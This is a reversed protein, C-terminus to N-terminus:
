GFVRTCNLHINIIRKTAIYSCHFFLSSLMLFVVMKARSFTFRWRYSTRSIPSFIIVPRSSTTPLKIYLQLYSHTEAARNCTFINNSILSINIILFFLKVLNTIYFILLTFFQLYDKM